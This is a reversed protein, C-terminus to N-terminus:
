AKSRGAGGGDGNKQMWKKMETQFSRCGLALCDFLVFCFAAGCSLARVGLSFM